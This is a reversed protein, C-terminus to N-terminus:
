RSEKAAGGAARDGEGPRWLIEGEEARAAVRAAVFLYDSLRNVYALADAGPSEPEQRALRVLSREARRCIARALHLRAAMEGGGPLIFSRLAPLGANLADIREELWRVRAGALRLGEKRAAGPAALEAGLDFLDNQIGAIDGAIEPWAGAMARALGLAANLEDVDGIAAFRVDDKPRRSGDALGSTGEDGTRTYIRNLKVM